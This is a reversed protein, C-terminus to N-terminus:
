LLLIRAFLDHLDYWDDEINTDINNHNIGFKPLAETSSVKALVYVSFVCYTVWCVGISLLLIGMAYDKFGNHYLVLHALGHLIGSTNFNTIAITQRKFCLLPLSCPSLEIYEGHVLDLSELRGFSRCSWNVSSSL